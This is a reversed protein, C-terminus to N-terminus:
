CPSHLIENYNVLMLIIDIPRQTCVLSCKENFIVGEFTQDSKM